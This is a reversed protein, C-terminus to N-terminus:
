CSRALEELVAQTDAGLKSAVGRSARARASAVRTKEGGASVEWADGISRVRAEYPGSGFGLVHATVECLSLDLLHGGGGQWSALASLAAHIGTLPDAIADACFLPSDVGTGTAVALGAAAGADDGFAVWNAEPERRGYGTISVWTLGPVSEVLSHADIGLQALARPRASEVVIDACEVLRRLKLRESAARFDLAM